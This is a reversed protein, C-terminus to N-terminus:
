HKVFRHTKSEFGASKIRLLYIGKSMLRANLDITFINEGEQADEWQGLILRGTMDLVQLYCKGAAKAMFEINLRDLTPNPYLTTIQNLQEEQEKPEEDPFLSDPTAGNTENYGNRVEIELANLFGYRAFAGAEVEVLVSGGRPQIDRIVATNSINQEVDLSVKKEGIRYTTIGSEGGEFASAGFFRFNYLLEDDLGYFYMGAITGVETYYFTKIVNDHYIGAGGADPGYANNGSFNQDLRLNIGTLQLDENQFNYWTYGTTPRQDLNTWPDRMNKTYNANILVEYLLTAAGKAESYGSHKGSGAARVKYEYGTDPTLETDLYSTTNPATTNVLEFEGQPLIRRWIEFGAEQYSNDTWSLAVDSRSVAHARFRAPRLMPSNEPYQEIVMANLYGGKTADAAGAISIVVEGGADAKIGNLQVTKDINSQVALSVSESGISYTTSGNFSKYISSGFFVFNYRLDPKLGSVKLQATKGEEIIYASSTVADTFVGSNNGSTEGWMKSASWAELLSLSYGTEAGYEDLLNSILLKNNQSGSTNTNNWPAATATGNGMNIYVSTKESNLVKINFTIDTELIGDTATLQIGSYFGIDKVAPALILKGKGAAALEVSAFSPLYRSTLQLSDGDPDQLDFLIETTKGETAIVDTELGALVPTKNESSLQAVNSWDSTETGKVARVKYQYDIGAETDLDTYTTINAPTTGVNNFNTGDTARWVEFGQEAIAGDTWKLIATANASRNALLGGPAPLGGAPTRASLTRGEADLAAFASEGSPGVARLQYYYTTGPELAKDAYTNGAAVTSILVFPGNQLNSRYIEVASSDTGAPTWDLQVLLGEQATATINAPAAPPETLTFIETLAADPVPQKSFDPGQWSVELLAATGQEKFYLVKIEHIGATLTIKGWKEQSNHKKDNNVVQMGDISLVSGADSTTYFTYEGEAPVDIYGEFKFAFNNNVRGPISISFNPIKGSAKPSLLAIDHVTSLSGEYYTYYIGNIFTAATVQRSFDSKNGARDIARVRFAFSKKEPLGKVQFSSKDSKGILINNAYIEYTISAPDTANDASAEWSLGISNRSTKTAALAAPIAPAINDAYTKGNGRSYESGGEENVSRLAYFYRTYPNLGEDQYVTTNASLQTALIWPGEPTTGRYLEFGSENTSNDKWSISLASESVTKVKIAAPAPLVGVANFTVQKPESFDSPCGRAETVSVSYSGAQDVVLSDLSSGDSWKYNQQGAPAYLTVSTRGDLTPLATPARVTVVPRATPAIRQVKLPDSWGSWEGKYKVRVTYNGVESFQVEHENNGFPAGDKRWEYGDFGKRIGMTGTVPEGTCFNYKFHEAHISLMSRQMLFPFFEKEQYMAEWTGHGLEHYYQYTYNAGISQFERSVREGATPSPRSDRGGQAHWLSNYKLVKAYSRATNGDAVSMVIAASFVMPNEYALKWATAGGASYGELQVRFPDVQLDRLAHEVFQLINAREPSNWFESGAQPVMVFGDYSGRNLAELHVQGGIKLQINNDKGGMGLGHLMVVLPYRKASVTTSDFSKPFLLRFPMGNIIYAKFPSTDWNTGENPQYCWAYVKGDAPPTTGCDQAQLRNVGLLLIITILLIITNKM